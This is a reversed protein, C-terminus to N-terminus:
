RLGAPVFNLRDNVGPACASAGDPYYEFDRLYTTARPILAPQGALGPPSFPADGSQRTWNGQEDTEYHYAESSTTGSSLFDRRSLLDQGGDWDLQNDEVLRGDSDKGLQRVNNGRGDWELSIKEKMLGEDWWLTEETKQGQADYAYTWFYRLMRRPGYDKPSEMVIASDALPLNEFYERRALTNGRADWEFRTVEVPDLTSKKVRREALRGDAGYKFDVTLPELEMGHLLEYHTLRGQPDWRYHRELLPTPSDGRIIEQTKRGRVYDAKATTLRAAASSTGVESVQSLANRQFSQSASLLGSSDYFASQTLYGSADFDMEQRSLDVDNRLVLKKVPGRLGLRCLDSRTEVQFFYDDAETPQLIALLAGEAAKYLLDQSGNENMVQKLWLAGQAAAPGLDKMESIASLKAASTGRSLVQKFRNLGAPLATPPLTPPDAWPFPVRVVPDSALATKLDSFDTFLSIGPTPAASAPSPSPATAVQPSPSALVAKDLDPNSPGLSRLQAAATPDNQALQRLQVAASQSVQPDSDHLAQGLYYVSDAGGKALLDVIRLRVLPEPFDLGHSITDLASPNSVLTSLCQFAKESVDAVPDELAQVMAWVAPMAKDGLV